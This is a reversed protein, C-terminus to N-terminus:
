QKEEIRIYKNESVTEPNKLVVEGESVGKRIEAGDSFEAGTFVDRRVAKGNDYVYVYEGGEDQNIACYPLVVIEEAESLDVTVDASLGSKIREDYDDPTINVDVVTELVAGNYQSRAAEAIHSVKGFFVKDPYASLTFRAPQGVRVKAIDLESVATKVVLESSKAVAAISSGSQVAEGNGALSIIRGSCDATISDPILSVATSLNAAAIALTNIKGLSEIFSASAQKDVTAIVDGVNVEDGVAVKYSGMVLPLPNSIDQQRTYGVTGSVAISETYSRVTASTTECLPAASEAVKPIIVAAGAAVLCIGSILVTKNM